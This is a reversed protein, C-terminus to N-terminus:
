VGGQTAAFQKRQFEEVGLGAYEANKALAAMEGNVHQLATLLAAISAVAGTAFTGIGAFSAGPNLSAFADEIRSIASDAMDGATNMDAAFQDLKAGLQVVLDNAM